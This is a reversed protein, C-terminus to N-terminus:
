KAYVGEDYVNIIPYVSIDTVQLGSILSRLDTNKTELSRFMDLKLPLIGVMGGNQGLVVYFNADKYSFPSNNTYKFQVADTNRGEQALNKMFVFDSVAFDLRYSQYDKTNKIKHMSIRQWSINEFAIAASGNATLGLEALPRNEGPLLFTSRSPTKEGNIVFYYDFKALFRDNPNFVEAIADYKDQGGAYMGVSIVQVPQAAFHPHIGTYNISASLSQFAIQDAKLDLVFMAWKYISFLWLIISVGVLTGMALRHLLLRNRVYWISWRLQKSSFEKSPDEYKNFDGSKKAQGNKAAPVEHQGNQNNVNYMNLMFVFLISIVAIIIGLFFM